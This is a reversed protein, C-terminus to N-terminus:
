PSSFSFQRVQARDRPTFGQTCQIFFTDYGSFIARTYGFDSLFPFNLTLAAGFSGLLLDHGLTLDFFALQFV